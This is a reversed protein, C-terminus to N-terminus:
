SRVPAYRMAVVGSKFTRAELLTLPFARAVNEFLPKGHGLVTPNINIRYEDILDLQMFTQALMRSGLFWIDQGPQQKIKNVEEAINDKILVTEARRNGRGM